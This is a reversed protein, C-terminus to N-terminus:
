NNSTCYNYSNWTAPHEPHQGGLRDDSVIDTSERNQGDWEPNNARCGEGQHPDSGRGSPQDDQHDSEDSGRQQGSVLRSAPARRTAGIGVKASLCSTDM